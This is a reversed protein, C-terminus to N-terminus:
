KGICFSSFIRGLLDDSTFEGTIESLSQQALRLEEALLEGAWAGRLQAKGQAVVGVRGAVPLPLQNRESMGAFLGLCQLLLPAAAGRNVVVVEGGNGALLAPAGARRVFGPDIARLDGCDNAGLALLNVAVFMAPHFQLKGPVTVATRVVLAGAPYPHSLAPGTALIAQEGYGPHTMLHYHAEEFAVRVLRNDGPAGEVGGIARGVLQRAVLAAGHQAGLSMLACAKVLQAKLVLSPLLLYIDVALSVEVGYDPVVSGPMDAVVQVRIDVVLPYGPHALHRALLARRWAQAVVVQRYLALLAVMDQTVVREGDIAALVLLQALGQQNLGPLLYVM